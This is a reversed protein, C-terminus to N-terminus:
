GQGALRNLFNGAIPAATAGGFEGGEVFVAFALDNQFGVFWAHAQPPVADGFEATGTKGSVPGGATGSVATATGGTVVQRMFQQLSGAAAPNLPEGAPPQHDAEIILSPPRYTGSAATAAVVAASLPSTLVRGQGFSTAAKDVPGGPNPVAGSFAATGLEYSAGLGFAAAYRGFDANDLTNGVNIFATNCSLVFAQRLGVTGLVEGEANSFVRGNVELTLPCDVPDDPGYGRDMAGYATIIKFVSGPPYQGTMAFNQVAAGPGNAVAVVHGTSPEIAVLASPLETSTLADEAARQIRPDITLQLPTGPVPDQRYIVDPDDPPSPAASTEGEAGAETTESTANPDEGAAPDTTTTTAAPAATPFRRQVRIEFGPQGALRANYERQLGSRGAVDGVIFIEPNEDLVERTVEASRGLLARAFRGDPPLPFSSPELVVGPLALLQGEIPAIEEARLSTIVVLSDSPSPAILERITAAEVGVLPGLAESLPAIEGAQRPIVGVTVVPRNDVLASGDRALIPARPAVVRQRVLVDGPDLSIELIAPEWDVLWDTGLLVLDAEGETQFATGDELTWALTMPATANASDVITVPGPRVELSFPGLQGILQQFEATATPVDTFAFGLGAFNGDPLRASFQQLALEARTEPDTAEVTSSPADAGNSALDGTGPDGDDDGGGVVIVAAVIAVVALALGALAPALLRIKTWDAYIDEDSVTALGGEQRRLTPFAVVARRAGM